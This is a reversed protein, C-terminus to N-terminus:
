DNKDRLKCKERDRHWKKFEDSEVLCVFTVMIVCIAVIVVSVAILVGVVPILADIALDAGFLTLIPIVIFFGILLGALGM